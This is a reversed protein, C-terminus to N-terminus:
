YFRNLIIKLVNYKTRSLKFTIAAMLRQAADVDDVEALVQRLDEASITELAAM